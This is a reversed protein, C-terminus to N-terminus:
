NNKISGILDKIKRKSWGDDVFKYAEQFYQLAMQDEGIELYTQGMSKLTDVKKWNIDASPLRKQDILLATQFEKKANDDQDLLKYIKGAMRHPKPKDPQSQIKEKQEQLAELLVAQADSSHINKLFLGYELLTYYKKHEPHNIIYQFVDIAHDNLGHNPYLKTAFRHLNHSKMYKKAPKLEIILFTMALVVMIMAGRIQGKSWIRRGIGEFAQHLIEVAFLAFALGLLMESFEGNIIVVYFNLVFISFAFYPWLTYPVLPLGVKNIFIQLRQFRCNLIPVLFVWIMIAYYFLLESPFIYLNHVTFESQYNHQAFIYPIHVGILRQGWSIEEMAILFLGLCLLVYGLRMFRRNIRIAWVIVFSALLYCIFTAYEVWSDEGGLFAYIMPCNYQLMLIVVLILACIISNFMVSYINAQQNQTKM